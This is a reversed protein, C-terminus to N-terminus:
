ENNDVNDIMNHVANQAAESLMGGTEGGAVSSLTQYTLAARGLQSDIDSNQLITKFEGLQDISQAGEPLKLKAGGLKVGGEIVKGTAENVALDVSSDIITTSIVDEASRGENVMDQAKYMAGAPTFVAESYGGTAIGTTTRAIKAGLTEGRAMEEFGNGLADKAADANIQANSKTANADASM